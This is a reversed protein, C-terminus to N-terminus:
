IWCDLNLGSKTVKCLDKNARLLGEPAGFRPDGSRRGGTEESSPHNEHDEPSQSDKVGKKVSLVIEEELSLRNEFKKKV